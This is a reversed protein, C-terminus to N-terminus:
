VSEKAEVLDTEEKKEQKPLLFQPTKIFCAVAAAALMVPILRLPFILLLLLVSALPKKMMHAILAATVVATCFGPDLGILLSCAYGACIGAFIVPFFHGGKLGSFICLNTLFLKLVAIVLLMVAGIEAGTEMVDEIQHEGSFMTLPVLTGIGGLAIGGIVCRLVVSKFLGTFWAAFKHFAFYLYGLAVGVLTLPIAWLYKILDMGEFRIDAFGTSGGTLKNLLIFCGFSSIIALLYLVIKQAKPLKTDEEGELPEVFGFMPSRFITGLSASVGIKTLDELEGSFKKLKDGVWTCLGAIVGTLGAEPGISAGLLLPFLAAGLVALINHYPYRNNKKVQAMVVGLEEPYDGFKKKYLGILFSGILCVAITYFPFSVKSPAFVWLYEIGINMVKLFTWIIAGTVAGLLVTYLGFLLYNKLKTM